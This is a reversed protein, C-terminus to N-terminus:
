VSKRFAAERQRASALERCRSITKHDRYSVQRSEHIGSSDGDHLIVPEKSVRLRIHPIDTFTAKQSYRSIRRAPVTAQPSPWAPVGVSNDAVSVGSRGMVVGM